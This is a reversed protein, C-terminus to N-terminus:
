SKVGVLVLRLFAQRRIAFLRIGAERTMAALENMTFARLISLYSDYRTVPNTTSLHGYLWAAYAGVRSRELDNVVFGVRAIRNMDAMLHVADGRSFHHIASSCIVIDFSGDPFPLSLIDMEDVTIEPFDVTMKRATGIMFPNKDVATIRVSRGSRRMGKALEVPYDGSGTALDLIDITAGPAMRGLLPVVGRRVARLGGLWKNIVRLNGLDGDLLDTDVDARDMMEPDRPDYRREPILFSLRQGYRENGAKGDVM